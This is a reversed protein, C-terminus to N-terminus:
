PNAPGRKLQLSGKVINLEGREDYFRIVYYYTGNPLDYANGQNSRGKFAIDQNNYSKGRWVLVGWRDVIDVENNPYKEINWISSYDHIDDGNASVSMFEIIRKNYIMITGPKVTMDTLTTSAEGALILKAPIDSTSSGSVQFAVSNNGPLITVFKPFTPDPVNDLRSGVGKILTLTIPVSTTVGEPLSATITISDSYYITGDGITIVKKEPDTSTIDLITVSASATRSFFNNSADLVLLEDLELVQDSLAYLTVSVSNRGPLLTVPSSISADSTDAVSGLGIGLEFSLDRTLDPTSGDSSVLSITILESKGEELKPSSATMVFSLDGGLTVTVAQMASKCGQASVGEIYYIGVSTISEPNQLKTVQDSGFYNYHDVNTSSTIVSSHTLDVAIPPYYKIQSRVSVTPVQGIAVKLIASGTCGTTPDTAIVKYSGDESVMYVENIGAISIGSKDQFSYTLSLSRNKIYTNLDISNGQGCIYAISSSLSVTIAPSVSVQINVRVKSSLGSRINTASVGYTGSKTVMSSSLRTNDSYYAYSYVSSNYNTIVSKLDASAGNCTTIPGSVLVVPYAYITITIPSVRYMSKTDTAQVILIEDQGVTNSLSIKQPRSSTGNTGITLTMPTILTTNNTSKVPDRTINFGVDGDATTIQRFSALTISVSNGEIVSINSGSATGNSATLTIANYALVKLIAPTVVYGTEGLLKGISFDQSSGAAHNGDVAQVTFTKSLENTGFDISVPVGTIVFGLDASVISKDLKVTVASGGLSRSITYVISSGEVITSNAPSITFKKDSPTNKSYVNLAGSNTVVYGQDGM